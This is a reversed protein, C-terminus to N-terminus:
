GEKEAERKEAKRKEDYYIANYEGPFLTKYANAIDSKRDKLVLEAYITSYEFSNELADLIRDFDVSKQVLGVYESLPIAVMSEAKKEPRKEKLKRAIEEKFTETQKRAVEEEARADAILEEINVKEMSDGKM